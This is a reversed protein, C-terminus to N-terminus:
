KNAIRFAGEHDSAIRFPGENFFGRTHSTGRGGLPLKIVFFSDGGHRRTGRNRLMTPTPSRDGAGMSQVRAPNPAPAARVLSRRPRIRPITTAIADLYLANQSSVEQKRGSGVSSDRANFAPDGAASSSGVYGRDEGGLGSNERQGRAPSVPLRQRAVREPGKPPAPVDGGSKPAPLSQALVQSFIPESFQSPDYAPVLPEDDDDLPAFGLRDHVDSTAPKKAAAPTAAASM